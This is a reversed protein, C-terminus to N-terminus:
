RLRQSPIDHRKTRRRSVFHGDREAAREALPRGPQFAGLSEYDIFELRDNAPARRSMSQVVTAADLAKPAYSVASQTSYSFPGSGLATRTASEYAARHKRQSGRSPPLLPAARPNLGVRSSTPMVHAPLVDAPRRDYVMSSARATLGDIRRSAPHPKHALDLTYPLPAGGCM